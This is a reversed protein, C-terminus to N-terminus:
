VFVEVNNLLTMNTFQRIAGDTTQPNRIKFTYLVKDKQQGRSFETFPPLQGLEYRNEVGSLDM